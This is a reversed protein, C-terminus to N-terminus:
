GKQCIKIIKNSIKINTKLKKIANNTVSNLSKKLHTIENEQIQKINKM